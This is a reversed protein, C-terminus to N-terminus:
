ERDLEKLLQRYADSAMQSFVRSLGSTDPHVARMTRRYAAKVEELSADPSLGLIIWPDQTPEIQGTENEIEQAVKARWEPDVAEMYAELLDADLELEAQRLAVLLEALQTLSLSSLSTNAALGHWEAITRGIVSGDPQLTLEIVEGASTNEDKHKRPRGRKRRIPADPDIGLWHCADRLVAAEVIQAISATAKLQQPIQVDDVSGGGDVICDYLERARALDREWAAAAMEGIYASAAAEGGRMGMALKYVVASMSVSSRKEVVIFDGDEAQFTGGTLFAKQLLPSHIELHSELQPEKAVFEQPDRLRWITKKVEVKQTQENGDPAKVVRDSWVPMVERVLADLINPGVLTQESVWIPLEIEEKTLPDVVPNPVVWLLDRRRFEVVLRVQTEVGRAHRKHWAM